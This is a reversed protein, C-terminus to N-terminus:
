TSTDAICQNLDASYTTGTNCCAQGICTYSDDAWPDSNDTSSGNDSPASSKDFYWNYEDWNMSDRNSLDILQIAIGVVPEGDLGVKYTWENVAGTVAYRAHTSRAWALLKARSTVRNM